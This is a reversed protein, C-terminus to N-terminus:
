SVAECAMRIFERAEAAAEKIRAVTEACRAANALTMEREAQEALQAVNWAGVARGSGKLTHAAIRWERDTAAQSLAEITQPLQGIFLELIEKELLKDGMTYRALHKLDIPSGVAADVAATKATSARRHATHTLM